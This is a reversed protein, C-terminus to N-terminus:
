PGTGEKSEDLIKGTINPYLSFAFPGARNSVTFIVVAGILKKM